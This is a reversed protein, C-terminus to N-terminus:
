KVMTEILCISVAYDQIYKMPLSLTNIMKKLFEKRYSPNKRVSSGNARYTFFIKGKEIRIGATDFSRKNQKSTIEEFGCSVMLLGLRGITDAAKELILHFADWPENKKNLYGRTSIKEFTIGQIAPLEVLKHPNLYANHEEDPSSGLFGSYKNRIANEVEAIQKITLSDRSLYNYEGGM